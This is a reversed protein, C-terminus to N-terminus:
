VKRGGDYFDGNLIYELDYLTKHDNCVFLFIQKKMLEYCLVNFLSCDFLLSITLM